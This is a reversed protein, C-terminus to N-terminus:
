GRSIRGHGEEDLAVVGGGQITVAAGTFRDYLDVMRLVREAQPSCGDIRLASGERECRKYLAVLARIGCSDIFTVGCLDLSLAGTVDALTTELLPATAIDLEGELAYRGPSVRRVELPSTVGDPSVTM